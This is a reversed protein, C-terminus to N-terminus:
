IIKFFVYIATQINTLKLFCNLFMKVTVITKKTFCIYLVLRFIVLDNGNKM